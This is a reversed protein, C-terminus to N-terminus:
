VITEKWLSMSYNLIMSWKCINTAFNVHIHTGLNLFRKKENLIRNWLFCDLLDVINHKYSCVWTNESWLLFFDVIKYIFIYIKISFDVAFSSTCHGILSHTKHHVCSVFPNLENKILEWEGRIGLPKKLIIKYKM